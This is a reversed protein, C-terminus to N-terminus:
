LRGLHLEVLLSGGQIGTGPVDKVFYRDESDSETDNPWVEERTVTKSVGVFVWPDVKGDKKRIWPRCEYM